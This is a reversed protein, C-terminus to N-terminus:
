CSPMYGYMVYWMWESLSAEDLGWVHGMEHWGTELLDNSSVHQQQDVIVDDALHTMIYQGQYFANYCSADWHDLVKLTQGLTGTPLAEDRWGIAYNYGSIGNGDWISYGEMVDGGVSISYPYPDTSNPWRLNTADVTVLLPLLLIVFGLLLTWRLNTTSFSRLLRLRKRNMKRTM